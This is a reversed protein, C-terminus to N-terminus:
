PSLVGGKPVRYPRTNTTPPGPELVGGGPPIITFGKRLKRFAPEWECTEYVPLDYANSGSDDKRADCIWCGDEYCCACIPGECAFGSCDTADSVTPRKGKKDATAEGMLATSAVIIAFCLVIPRRLFDMSVGGFVTNRVPRHSDGARFTAPDAKTIVRGKM